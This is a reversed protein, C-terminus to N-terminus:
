PCNLAVLPPLSDYLEVDVYPYKVSIAKKFWTRAEDFRSQKSCAIALNNCLEGYFFQELNSGGNAKFGKIAAKCFSYAKKYDGRKMALAGMANLASYTEPEVDLAKQAMKKADVFRGLHYLLYAKNGTIRPDKLDTDMGSIHQNADEVDGIAFASMYLIEQILDGDWNDSAATGICEPLLAYCKDACKYAEIYDQKKEYYLVALSWWATVNKPNYRLSMHFYMVAKNWDKKEEVKGVLEYIISKSESFVPHGKVLFTKLMSYSEMVLDDYEQKFAGKFVSFLLDFVMRASQEDDKLKEWGKMIANINIIRSKFDDYSFLQNDCVDYIFAYLFRYFIKEKDKIMRDQLIVVIDNLYKRACGKEVACQLLAGVDSVEQDIRKVYENLKFNNEPRVSTPATKVKEMVAKDVSTQLDSPKLANGSGLLDNVERNFIRVFMCVCVGPLFLYFILAVLFAVSSVVGITVLTEYRFLIDGLYYYALCGVGLILIPILSLFVIVKGNYKQSRSESM